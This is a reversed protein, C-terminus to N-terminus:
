PLRGASVMRAILVNSPIMVVIDDFECLPSAGAPAGPAPDSCPSASPTPDRSFFAQQTYGIGSVATTVQATGNMNWAEDDASPLPNVQTGNSQWAGYGNKGHSIFVAALASGLTVARTDSVSRTLVAIDGLSCLAFSSLAPIPSLTYPAVAPCTPNQDSLSLIAPTNQSTFGAIPSSPGPTLRSQWSNLSVADAFAPSVRYTFRRGWADTEPVGLTAWPVVGIATTCSSGNYREVGAGSTGADISGDAPCPLRGNAQVYGTLAERVQDMIRRTDAINRVEVQTSLPILSSALLLGIIV